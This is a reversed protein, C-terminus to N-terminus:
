REKRIASVCRIYAIDQSLDELNVPIKRRWNPHQDYDTGPLNQMKEVHLIDELQALFVPSSSRSMFRMVAEEIGEPYKEGYIYDGRRPKDEPWVGAEDLAALLYGRDTERKHYSLSREEEGQIMGMTYNLEIDYGFWWMKLPAIDHTGVSAFANQPYEEPQRFCGWGFDKREGWLISLAHINRSDIAELFGAPVNGISEGVIICKNLWSELAVINLMDEFNYYIYTGASISDPIVYLRMLSMVHDMRLAGSHQMNARLIDIFPKYRQEKLVEPLFVGLNWRQGGPFFADPPAGAGVGLMFLDPNSWYEASDRGVGVALDRYFGIKLGLRKVEAEALAFQRSAEFQLFKFFEVDEKHQLVFEKVGASSPRSYKEPWSSQGGFTKDQYYDYIVQFAALNDLSTGYRKCFDAFDQHRRKDKSEKFRTFCKHLMKIKLPYIKGYEILESSRLEELLGELPQKDEINFEPVAEIDIYIPNLFERSISSYPSANEPYNHNLVNLPNLGIIDAGSESCLHVFNKLDTFDGIGWNRRSKVSYLQLAYGWIKTDALIDYCRDPAVALMSIYKKGKVIVTLDYYGIELSTTIRLGEKYLNQYQEPNGLYQYALEITNNDKDRVSLAIDSLDPSVVDIIIDKVNCVYIPALTSQWRKTEIEQLSSAIDKDSDANYGMSKIIYKIVNDGVTHEQQKLGTDSFSTAIGLNDALKKLNANM